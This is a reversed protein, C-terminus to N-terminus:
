QAIAKYASVIKDQITTRVEASIPHVYDKYKGDAGKRAPMSISFKGDNEYIFINHIALANDVVISAVAKTSKSEDTLLKIRVDTIEM